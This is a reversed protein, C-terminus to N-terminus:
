APGSLDCARIVRSNHALSLGPQLSSVWIHQLVAGSPYNISGVDEIILSEVINAKREPLAIAM